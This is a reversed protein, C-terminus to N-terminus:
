NLEQYEFKPYGKAGNSDYFDLFRLKFFRNGSKVIYNKASNILYEGYEYQKWEYGIGDRKENFRSYNVDSLSIKSFDSTSDMLYAQSRYPNTLVGNVKYPLKENYFYTSFMTFNLDWNDKFPELRKITHDTFSYYIFNVDQDKPIFANRLDSGDINAYTINYGTTFDRIMLLKMGINGERMNLGRNILYIKNFSFPYNGWKGIANSDALGYGFEVRWSKNLTDSASIQNFETKDIQACQMLKAGNLWVNFKNPECDFALDYEFRSNLSVFEATQMNFYLQNEYDPGMKAEFVDGVNTPTKPKIPKEKFCSTLLLSLVSISIITRM